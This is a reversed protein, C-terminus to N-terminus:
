TTQIDLLMSYHKLDNDEYVEYFQGQEFIIFEEHRIRYLRRLKLFLKNLPQENSGAEGFNEAEAQLSGAPSISESEKDVGLEEESEGM